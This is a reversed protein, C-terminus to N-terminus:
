WCVKGMPATASGQVSFPRVGLGAGMAGGAWGPLQQRSCGELPAPNVLVGVGAESGGVGDSDGDGAVGM